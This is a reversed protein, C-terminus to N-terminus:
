YIRYVKCYTAISLIGRLVKFCRAIGHLVVCYVKCYRLVGQLVRCYLM